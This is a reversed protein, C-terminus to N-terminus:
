MKVHYFPDFSLIAETYHDIVLPASGAVTTPSPLLHCFLLLMTDTPNSCGVKVLQQLGTTLTSHQLDWPGPEIGPHPNAKDACPM